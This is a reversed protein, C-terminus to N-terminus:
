QANRRVLEAIGMYGIILTCEDKYPILYARRGDPELGMASLELLCKFFSEKTCNLLKPNRLTANLAIRAFREASMWKPLAKAVQRKFEESQLLEKVSTKSSQTKTLTENM